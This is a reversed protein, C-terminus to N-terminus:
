LFTYVLIDFFVIIKKSLKRYLRRGGLAAIAISIFYKM